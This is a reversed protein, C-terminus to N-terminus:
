ISETYAHTLFFAHVWKLKLQSVSLFLDAIDHSIILPQSTENQPLNAMFLRTIFRVDFFDILSDNYISIPTPTPLNQACEHFLMSLFPM